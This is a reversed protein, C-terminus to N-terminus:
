GAKKEEGPRAGFVQGGLADRLWPFRDDAVIDLGGSTALLLAERANQLRGLMPVVITDTREVFQLVDAVNGPIKYGHPSSALIVGSDRLKAIVKTYVEHKSRFAIGLSALVDLIEDGSVWETESASEFTFLLYGLAEVRALVEPDDPDGHARLFSQAAEVCYRRVAVDHPSGGLLPRLPARFRKPWDVVFLAKTRLLDQIEDKAPSLKKPDFLRALSGAVFDALQVLPEAASAAFEFKAKRFLDGQGLGIRNALVYKKFGDMFDDRGYRDAVVQLDPSAAFLRDLLRRHMFKVFPEGFVLGSDRLVRSKDVAVAVFKFDLEQLARLVSIRRDDKCKASKIPGPGFFKARVADVEARLTPVKEGPVVVAAVIFSTTVGAKEIDLSPDGYADIFAQRPVVPFSSDSTSPGEETM